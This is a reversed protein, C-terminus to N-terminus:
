TNSETLINAAALWAEPIREAIRELQERTALQDIAGQFSCVVPDARFRELVAPDWGNTEVMFTTGEPYGEFGDSFPLTGGSALTATLAVAAM